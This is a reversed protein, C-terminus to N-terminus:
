CYLDKWYPNMSEILEVKKSRPGAKIKKEAAIADNINNFPEYYVLMTLNYRKTFTTGKGIRHECARRKLDNTVGTYIVTKNRNTVMYIWYQKM